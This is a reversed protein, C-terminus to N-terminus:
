IHGHRTEENTDKVYKKVEDDCEDELYDFDIDYTRRIDGCEGDDVQDGVLKAVESRCNNRAIKKCERPILKPRGSGSSGSNASRSGCYKRAIGRAFPEGLGSCDTVSTCRNAKKTAWDIAGKECDRRAKRSLYYYDCDDYVQDKVDPIFNRTIDRFDCDYNRTDWLKEAMDEGDHYAASGVGLERQEQGRLAEASVDRVVIAVLPIILKTCDYLKM